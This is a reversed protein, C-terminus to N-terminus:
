VMEQADSLQRPRGGKEAINLEINSSECTGLGYETLNSSGVVYYSNDFDEKDDYIYAKAHCFNTEIHKVEVSSQELFEIAKKAAESLEFVHEIDSNGGLLDIIHDRKEPNALSAIEGLILRYRKPQPELRRLLSLATITFYGTVINLNGSKTFRKLYDIVTKIDSREQHVIKNDIIM